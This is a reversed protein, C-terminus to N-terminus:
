LKTGRESVAYMEWLNYKGSEYIPDAKAYYSVWM